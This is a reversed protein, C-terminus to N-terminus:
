QDVMSLQSKFIQGFIGTESIMKRLYIVQEIFM